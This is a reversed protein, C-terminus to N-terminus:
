KNDEIYVTTSMGIKINNDPKFSVHVEYYTANQKKEGISSIYEVEGEYNTNPLSDIKIRLRDGLKLKEIDMEDVDMVIHLESNDEITALAQNKQVWLGNSARINTLIGEKEAIVKSIEESGDDRKSAIEFLVDDKKVEQGGKVSFTLIEGTDTASVTYENVAEVIGTVTIKSDKTVQEETNKQEEENKSCGTIFLTTALVLILIMSFRKKM